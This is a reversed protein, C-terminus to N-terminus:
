KTRGMTIDRGYYGRSLGIFVRDLKKKKDSSKDKWFTIVYLLQMILFCSLGIIFFSDTGFMLFIDGLMAFIIALIFIPSQNRVTYIYFGLLSGMIMPKSVM